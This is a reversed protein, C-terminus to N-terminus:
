PNSEPRQPLPALVADHALAAILDTQTVIGVIAPGDLVPVADTGDIALPALLASVPAQPGVTPLNTTMLAAATQDRTRDPHAILQLQFIIGQFHGAADVVPLSTFGHHLFLDAVRHRPTDPLVTILDRSMIEAATRIPSQNAAAQVEAAAILRALDEVGLNLSQRYRSLIDTLDGQDLGLRESPARDRTLNANVDNFLRFPYHRGTFHAWVTATAVLAASGLAVPMLVFSWDPPTGQTDALAVTLAVAGGPPHTARAIAMALIAGGVALPTALAPAAVLRTILIAVLAAITNGVVASWPQALPSNPAAFVLVATAGFPAIILATADQGPVLALAAVM